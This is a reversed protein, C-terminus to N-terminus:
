TGIYILLRHGEAAMPVSRLRQHRAIEFTAPPVFQLCGDGFFVNSVFVVIYIYVGLLFTDTCFTSKGIAAVFIMTLQSGSKCEAIPLTHQWDSALAVHVKAQWAQFFVM